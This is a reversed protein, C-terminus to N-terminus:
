TMEEIMDELAKQAEDLIEEGNEEMLNDTVKKVMETVVGKTVAEAIKAADVSSSIADALVVLVRESLAGQMKSLELMTIEVSVTLKDGGPSVQHKVTM